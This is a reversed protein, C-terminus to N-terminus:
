RNAVELIDVGLIDVRLIHPTPLSAQIGLIFTTELDLDPELDLDLNLDLDPLTEPFLIVVRPFTAVGSHAVAVEVNCKNADAAISTTFM